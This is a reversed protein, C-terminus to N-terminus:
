AVIYKKTFLDVVSLICESYVRGCKERSRGMDEAVLLRDTFSLTANDVLYASERDLDLSPTLAYHVISELLGNKEAVHMPVEAVECVSRLLCSEGDLGVRFGVKPGVREEFM